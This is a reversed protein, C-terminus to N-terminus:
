VHARGIERLTPVGVLRPGVCGVGPLQAYGVLRSLWRPDAPELAPDYLLVYEESLGAVARNVAASASEGPAVGVEHVTYNAYATRERLAPFPSGHRVPVVVAVPPGDDAFDLLSIPLRLREAFAPTYPTAAVGTRQLRDRLARECSTFMVPKVAAASAT